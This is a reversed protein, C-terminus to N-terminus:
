MKVGRNLKQRRGKKGGNGGGGWRVFGRVHGGTETEGVLKKQLGM